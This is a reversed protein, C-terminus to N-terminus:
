PIDFDWRNKQFSAEEATGGFSLANGGALVALLETGGDGLPNLIVVRRDVIAGAHGVECDGLCVQRWMRMGDTFWEARVLGKFGVSMM